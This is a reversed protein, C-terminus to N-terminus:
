VNKTSFDLSRSVVQACLNYFVSEYRIYQIHRM